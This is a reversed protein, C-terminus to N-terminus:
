NLTAGRTDTEPFAPSQQSFVQHRRSYFRAPTYSDARSRHLNSTRANNGLSHQLPSLSRRRPDNQRHVSRRRHLYKKANNFFTSKHVCTVSHPLLYSFSIHMQQKGTKIDLCHRTLSAKLDNASSQSMHM